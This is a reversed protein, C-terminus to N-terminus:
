RSVICFSDDYHLPQATEGPNIVIAQSATVLYNPLLLQDLLRIIRPHILLADYARSKGLIGYPRNTLRGEFNNRGERREDM